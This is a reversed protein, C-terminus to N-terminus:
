PKVCCSSSASTTSILVQAMRSFASSRTRPRSAFNREFFIRSCGSRVM